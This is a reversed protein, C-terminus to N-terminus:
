GVVEELGLALEPADPAGSGNAAGIGLLAYDISRMTRDLIRPLNRRDLEVLIARRGLSNAVAGVTGTGAFPDLVTGGPPVCSLIPRVVLESPFMAFHQHKAGERSATPISWINGPNVALNGGAYQRGTYRFVGAQKDVLSGKRAELERGPQVLKAHRGQARKSREISSEKAPIRVADLDFDDFRELTFRFLVEDNVAFRDTASEPLGNTKAWVIRDRLIWGAEELAIALRYPALLLSKRRVGPPVGSLNSRVRPIHRAIRGAAPGSTEKREGGYAAFRDGLNLWLHGTPKLVLKALEGFAVLRDIWDVLRPERGLELEVDPDDDPLYRRQQWYPPSTVIADVGRDALGAMTAFADGLYVELEADAFDPTM